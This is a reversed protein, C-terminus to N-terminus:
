GISAESPLTYVEFGAMLNDTQVVLGHIWVIWDMYLCDSWVACSRDGSIDEFEFKVAGIAGSNPSSPFYLNSM